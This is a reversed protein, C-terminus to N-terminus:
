EIQIDNLKKYITFFFAERKAKLTVHFGDHFTVCRENEYGSSSVLLWVRVFNPFIIKLMM